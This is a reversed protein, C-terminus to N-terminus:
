PQELAELGKDEARLRRAEDRIASMLQEMRRWGKWYAHTPSQHYAGKFTASHADHALEFFLAEIRSIRALGDGLALAHGAVPHPARDQPQPNLQGEDYLSRILHAAERLHEDAGRKLADADALARRASKASHCRQCTALMLERRAQQAAGDITPTALASLEGAPVAGHGVGGLTLNELTAHGAAGGLHCSQCTPARGVDPSRAYAQGHASASWAEFQPHDPGQHCRGCLSPSRLARRDTSHGQHCADCRGQGGDASRAGIGHCGDCALRRAAEPAEKYLGSAQIRGMSTAHRTAAFEAAEAAHCRGCVLASIGGGAIIVGHDAGHCDQCRVGAEFHASERWERVVRPQQASHCGICSDPQRAELWTEVARRQRVGTLALGGVVVAGLMWARRM